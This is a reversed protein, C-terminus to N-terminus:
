KAKEVEKTEHEEWDQARQVGKQWRKYLQERTEPEMNPMFSRERQWIRAIEEESNWIGVALGALFAAGLATTETVVPRDVECALIDAQFQALFNNAIAGGDVRLTHTMEGSDEQMAVLVDKTQYAMSELAARALHAKTSGRTLGLITGRAYADWYPAGLGVFAPVVVVGGTDPVSKALAETEAATGILKLEDRLWQVVAGTVFISGELAYTVKGKLGWAITTILGNHSDVPQSGTNMLVFSGTGYTNKAMGPTFCGQGFLAAQQDGAIGAIPIERGFLAKDTSGLVGSSDVVQPCVAAPIHLIDLIEQDWQLTHINYLLTRSANTYDTVHKKGNTLKYILWSDVTGFAIEGAEAKQRLGPVQDLLWSVKTGSFYADIILGTKKQFLPTYGAGKLEDCYEATRRCQWVIANHVAKGTQKDWMVTTERQNTIGIAAIEEVPVEAAKLCDQIAQWQSEWIAEPDHEVWGPKPYIQPFEHQGSAVPTGKEDFLIARSSTTGQDLALLYRSM